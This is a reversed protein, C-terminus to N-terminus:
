KLIVCKMTETFDMAEIRYFYLGSGVNSANWIVSHYGANKYENILTEILQGTVNYVSLNVITSQPLEYAITTVPNFPNPYNQHLAYVEPQLGQGGTISVGGTGYGENQVLNPNTDLQIQPIPFLKKYDASPTEHLSWTDSWHGTRILDQRRFGEWLLEYGREDLIDDLTISTLPEDPEFARERVLNVLDLAENTNGLMFQAEAKVLLIHSYRFIAYDNGAFWGNMERDIPWKLIRVGNSETADILPSDVTFILSDGYRDYAQQGENPGGLVVQPGILLLTSDAREDDPDYKNYFDALVSFGNWPTSPLQNYHLTAQHRFSTIGDEPEHVVVFINEVNTRGENELAFVDYYTPMLDYMGSNIVADCADVCESWMATGTYVEANLYVTALLANAAGKTVRGYNDEEFSEELDPLAANIEAVIFNFVELPTNQAPPNDPDTTPETVLPVNRFLDLLWWYYLTRLFRAEAIHLSEGPLSELSDITSNAMAIGTYAEMWAGSVTSTWTHEQLARWVGGDDWDGGRTPVVIADSSVEQLFMYDGWSARRINKYVPMMSDVDTRYFHEPITSNYPTRELDTSSRFLQASAINTILLVGFTLSFIIKMQREGKETKVSNM